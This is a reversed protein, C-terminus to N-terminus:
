RESDLGILKASSGTSLVVTKAEVQEEGWYIRFPREKLNVKHVFGNVIDTGFRLAQKRMDDMIQPRMVVKPSGPLHEGLTTMNLQGCPRIGAISLPDLDASAAYLVATLGAPGSGIIVMNRM